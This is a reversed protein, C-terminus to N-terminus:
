LYTGIEYCEKETAEDDRVRAKPELEGCNHILSYVAFGVVSTFIMNQSDVDFGAKYKKM